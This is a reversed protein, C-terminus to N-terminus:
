LYNQLMLICRFNAFSIDINVDQWSALTIKSKLDQQQRQKCFLQQQNNRDIFNNKNNWQIDTYSNNSMKATIILKAYM